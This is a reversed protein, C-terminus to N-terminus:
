FWGVSVLFVKISRIKFFFITQAVSISWKPVRGMYETAGGLFSVKAGLLVVYQVM